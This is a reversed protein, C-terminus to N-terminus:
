YKEGCKKGNKNQPFNKIFKNRYLINELHEAFCQKLLNARVVNLLLKSM